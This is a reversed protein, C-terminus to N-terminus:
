QKWRKDFDSQMLDTVELRQKFGPELAESEEFLTPQYDGVFVEDHQKEAEIREDIAQQYELIRLAGQDSTLATTGIMRILPQIDRETWNRAELHSTLAERHRNPYHNM